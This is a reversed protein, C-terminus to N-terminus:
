SSCFLAHAPIWDWLIRRRRWPESSLPESVDCCRSCYVQVSDEGVVDAEWKQRMLALGSDTLIFRAHVLGYLKEAAVDFQDDRGTDDLGEDSVKPIHGAGGVPSKVNLNLDSAEQFREVISRLGTLILDNGIYDLDVQILWDHGPKLRLGDYFALGDADM